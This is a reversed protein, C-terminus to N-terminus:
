YWTARAKFWGLQILKLPVPSPGEEMHYSVMIVM